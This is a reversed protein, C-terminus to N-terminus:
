LYESFLSDDHSKGDANQLRSSQFPGLAKKPAKIM